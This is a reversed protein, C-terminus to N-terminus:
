KWRSKKTTLIRIELTLNLFMQYLELIPAFIYLKKTKLKKFVKYYVFIQLIWKLLIAILIYQWPISVLFLSILSFYFLWTICPLFALSLKHTTKFHKRSIINSKKSKIWDKYSKYSDFTIQSPESLVVATNKNNAVQNIFIDDDGASLNYHKIFGGVKYFLSKKYALNYGEGMYPKKCLAFSIYNMARITHDYQIIKNLLGKRNAINAYGLVIEKNTSFASAIHKLWEFSNPKCDAKILVLNEYKASKIGISIPFKQGQFKNVNEVINVIKLHSYIVSLGKLVYETDDTSADNVVIVEYKPYDQELIEILKSKLNYEDNKAVVIVSLPPLDKNELLPQNYYKKLTIKRYVILYFLIQLILFLSVFGLLVLNLTTLPFGFNIM